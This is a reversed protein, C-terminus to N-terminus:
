AEEPPGPGARPLRIRLGTGGGPRREAWVRGGHLEVIARTIALGLGSGGAGGSSGGSAGLRHFRRFVAELQGAPIGPGDDSVSLAVAAGAGARGAAVVRTGAPTHQHANALLNLLAQELRRPDAEVPLHEDPLDLVLAQGKERFLPQLAAAAGRVVDRADLPRRELHLAGAELQTDTLLDNILLGLREINRGATGLVRQEEPRLRDAASSAVMAVGARAATLPTRLDHTISSLFEGRQRDLEQLRAAEAREAQARAQAQALRRSLLATGVGVLALVSLRASLARLQADTASWLPLTPAVAAVLVLVAGTYLLARGLPWCVAATIVALYFAVFLPGGPEADLFYLLGAVPLDLYPVWSYSRLRPVRARAAEVGLNYVALAAVFAWVPHGTRGPLPWVLTIVLMVALVVWRMGAVAGELPLRTATVPAEGPVHEPDGTGTTGVPARRAPAASMPRPGAPGGLGV